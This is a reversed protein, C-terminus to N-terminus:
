FKYAVRALFASGKADGSNVLVRADAEIEKTLNTIAVAEIHTTKTDKGWATQDGDQMIVNAVLKSNKEDKLELVAGAKIAHGKHLGALSAEYGRAFAPSKGLPEAIAGDGSVSNFALNIELKDTANVAAKAGILTYSAPKLDDSAKVSLLQGALTKLPSSSDIGGDIYFVKMDGKTKDSFEIQPMWYVWGQAAIEGEKLKAGAVVLGRDDIDAPKYRDDGFMVDSIAIFDGKRTGNSGTATSFVGSFRSIYGANLKLSDNLPIDFLLAEVANPALRYDVDSSILPVDLLFRGGIVGFKEAKHEVFIRNFSFFQGSKGSQTTELGLLKGGYTKDDDNEALPLALSGGFGIKTQTSMERSYVGDIGAGLASAKPEKTSHVLMGSAKADIKGDGVQVTAYLSSAIILTCVVIKKM